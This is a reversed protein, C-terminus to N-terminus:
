NATFDTLVLRILEILKRDNDDLGHLKGTKGYDSWLFRRLRTRKTLSMSASQDELNKEYAVVVAKPTDPLHKDNIKICYLPALTARDEDSIRSKHTSVSPTPQPTFIYSKKGKKVSVHDKDDANYQKRKNSYIGQSFAVDGSNRTNAQISTPESANGSTPIESIASAMKFISQLLKIENALTPKSMALEKLDNLMLMILEAHPTSPHKKVYMSFLVESDWDTTKTRLLYTTPENM